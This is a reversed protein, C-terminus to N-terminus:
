QIPLIRIQDKFEDPLAAGAVLILNDIIDRLRYNPPLTFIGPVHRGVTIHDALQGPMTTRNNTVLILDWQECWILIEPDLTGTAPQGPDGIRYVTLSPEQQLLLQRWLPPMSEDILYRLTM